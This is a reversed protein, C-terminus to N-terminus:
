NIIVPEQTPDEYFYRIVFDKWPAPIQLQIHEDKLIDWQPVGFDYSAGTLNIEGKLYDVEYYGGGLCTEWSYLLDKHLEVEGMRFDGDSTIIFKKAM